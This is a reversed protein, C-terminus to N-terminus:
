RIVTPLRLVRPVIVFVTRTDLVTVGDGLVQIRITFLQDEDTAPVFDNYADLEFTVSSGPHVTKFVDGEISAGAPPPPVPVISQIFDATTTGDPLPEALEGQLKGISRTSVDLDALTALQQIADVIRSSLGTGDTQVDFVLPCRPEGAILVPAHPAGGVGTPCEGQADPPITAKTEVALDELQQRPEFATGTNELSNIGIVRAGIGKLASVAQDRGHLTGSISAYDQPAHAVADTIHILIPLSDPRFGAGGIGAPPNSQFPPLAFSPLGAGTAWQFLAEYGAEPVDLGGGPAPLANIAAGIESSSATVIQHLQYPLDSTLGHPDLPFDRFRGLGFAVSPIVAATQPIISSVLNAQINATEGEMSGTNDISFFVDAQRIDTSFDLQGTGRAGRYPLVFYFDGDPIRAAADSPDSGALTEVLDGIADGDTDTAFPSSEGPDAQCNGNYDEDEDAVGDGDADLDRFDAAGDGDSDRAPTSPDADGAECSDPIGDGDSDLDRTDPVGDGDADLVGRTEDLPAGPLEPWNREEADRIGDGDSDVDWADLAGDGDSDVLEFAGGLEDTDLIGDGDADLDRFNALGDGDTDLPAGGLLVDGSEDRDPIGDGDADLDRFDPFGDADTDLGDARGEAADSIGDHDADLRAMEAISPEGAGPERSGCAALALAWTASLTHRLVVRYRIGLRFAM